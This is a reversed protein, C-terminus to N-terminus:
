DLNENEEKQRLYKPSNSKIKDNLQQRRIKENARRYNRLWMLEHPDTVPIRFGQPHLSEEPRGQARGIQAWDTGKPPPPLRVFKHFEYKGFPVKGRVLAEKDRDTNLLDRERMPYQPKEKIRLRPMRKIQSEDPKWLPKGKQTVNRAIKNLRPHQAQRINRKIQPQYMVKNKRGEKPSLNSTLIKILDDGYPSHYPAGKGHVSTSTFPTRRKFVRKGMVQQWAKIKNPDAGVRSAVDELELNSNISSKLTKYKPQSGFFMSNDMRVLTKSLAASTKASSASSTSSATSKSSFLRSPLLSTSLSSVNSLSQPFLSGQLSSSSPMLRRRTLNLLSTLM